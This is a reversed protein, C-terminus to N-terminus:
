AQRATISYKFSDPNLSDIPGDATEAQPYMFYGLPVRNSGRLLVDHSFNFAIWNMEWAGFRQGALDVPVWGYGTLYVEARCHQAKTAQESALRLGYVSRAPIGATRCFSVFLASVDASTRDRLGHEVVVDYLARAKEFDTGAGTTVASAKARVTDAAPSLRTPKLFPAFAALTQPPPVTPRTLDAAHEKTAVRSVLTVAPYVGEEWSCGLMDPELANTEIMVATGSGPHYTDGLTKQYPAVALPTPLWARAVGRPNLIEVQTTIEFERWREPAADQARLTRDALALGAAALGTGRLFTRRNM